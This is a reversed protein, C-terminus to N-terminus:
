NLFIFDNMLESKLNQIKEPFNFIYSLLSTNLIYTNFYTNIFTNIMKDNKSAKLYPLLVTLTNEGAESNDHNWTRM